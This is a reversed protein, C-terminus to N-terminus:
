PSAQRPVELIEDEPDACGKGCLIRRNHFKRRNNNTMIAAANGTLV